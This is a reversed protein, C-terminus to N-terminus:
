EVDLAAAALRALAVAHDRDLHVEQGVHVDGALFALAAAVVALRQLDFVAALRDGFHELQGDILRQREDLVKRRDGPFQPRQLVDTQAVDLQTLRRRRQRTAFRLPHLELRSSARRPM